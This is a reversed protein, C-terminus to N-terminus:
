RSKQKMMKEGEEEEEQDRIDSDELDNDSIIITQFPKVGQPVGRPHPGCQWGGLTQHRAAISPVLHHLCERRSYTDGSQWLQLFLFHFITICIWFWNLSGRSRKLLNQECESFTGNQCCTVNQSFWNEIHDGRSGSPTAKSLRLHINCLLHPVPSM